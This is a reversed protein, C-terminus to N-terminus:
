SGPRNRRKSKWHTPGMSVGVGCISSRRSARVPSWALPRVMVPLGAAEFFRLAQKATEFSFGSHEMDFFVFDCGANKLIHGIGPTAFEGVYHGVKLDRTQALQKLTPGTM